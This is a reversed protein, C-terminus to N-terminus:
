RCDFHPHFILYVILALCNSYLIAIVSVQPLATKMFVFIPLVLNSPLLSLAETGCRVSTKLIETAMSKEVSEPIAVAKILVSLCM